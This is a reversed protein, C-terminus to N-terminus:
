GDSEDEDQLKIEVDEVECVDVVDVCGIVAVEEIDDISRVYMDVCELVVILM